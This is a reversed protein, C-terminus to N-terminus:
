GHIVVLHAATVCMGIVFLVFTIVGLERDEEIRTVVYMCFCIFVFVGAVVVLVAILM